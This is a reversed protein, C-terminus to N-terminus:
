CRKMKMVIATETPRRYYKLRRGVEVFGFLEYLQRAAMNSKRVELFYDGPQALLTELLARAVGLRRYEPVVAVNLIEREAPSAGNGAYVERWILFGVVKGDGLAALCNDQELSRKSWPDRFSALEIALLSPTDAPEAPRVAIKIKAPEAM